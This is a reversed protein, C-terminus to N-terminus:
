PLQSSAAEVYAFLDAIQKSVEPKDSEKAAREAAAGLRTIDPFGYSTGTGKLNHALRRIGDFDSHELFDQFVPAEKRRAALYNRALQEMGEPIQILVTSEATATAKAPRTQWHGLANLFANKSIPKALHADSGAEQARAVEAPLANTMLALIPIRAASRESEVRRIERIVALGDLVPLQLDIAAMEFSGPQCAIVARQGDAAFTLDFATGQCYARLLFCDDERHAAVLIANVIEWPFGLLFDRNLLLALPPRFIRFTKWKSTGTPQLSM